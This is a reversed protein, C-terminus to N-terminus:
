LCLDGIVGFSIDALCNQSFGELTLQHIPFTQTWAHHYLASTELVSCKENEFLLLTSELLSNRISNNHVPEALGIASEVTLSYHDGCMRDQSLFSCFTQMIYCWKVCDQRSVFVQLVYHQEGHCMSTYMECLSKASLQVVTICLTALLIM